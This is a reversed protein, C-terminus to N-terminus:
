QPKKESESKKKELEDKMKQLEDKVNQRKKKIAELKKLEEEQRKRKLKAAKDFYKYLSFRHSVALMFKWESYDKHFRDDIIEQSPYQTLGFDFALHITNNWPGRLRVGQTLRMSNRSFNVEGPNNFFIEGSYETYLQFSRISYKFSAGIFLQDIKAYFYQDYIDHDFYGFNFNVKLPLQPMLPLFDFSILANLAWGPKDSSFVEYPVNPYGATPFKYVGAIGFKFVAASLPTMYKIGIQTDGIKGWLNHQDDQYLVFNAFSELYRAVGVTLNVDLRNYKILAITQGEKMFDTWRGSVYIDAPSIPDAELVRCLGKGGIM